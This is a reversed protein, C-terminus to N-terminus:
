IKILLQKINNIKKLGLNIELKLQQVSSILLNKNSLLEKTLTTSKSTLSLLKKYFEEFSKM